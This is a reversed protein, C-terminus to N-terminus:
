GRVPHYKRAKSRYAQKIAKKDANRPVGLVDYYDAARVLVTRGRGRAGGGHPAARRQRPAAARAAPSLAAVV